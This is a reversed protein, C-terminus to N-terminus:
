YNLRLLLRCLTPSPLSSKGSGTALYDSLPMNVARSVVLGLVETESSAYAFRTNPSADSTNSNTFRPSRM